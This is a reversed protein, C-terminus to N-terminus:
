DNTGKKSKAREARIEDKLIICLGELVLQSKTKGEAAAKINLLRIIDDPLYYSMAKTGDKGRNREYGRPNKKRWDQKPKSVKETKNTEKPEQSQNGFMALLAPNQKVEKNLVANM